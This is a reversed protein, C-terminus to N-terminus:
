QQSWKESPTPSEFIGLMAIYAIENILLTEAVVLVFLNNILNVVSLCTNWGTGYWIAPETGYMLAGRSSKCQQEHLRSLREGQLLAINSRVERACQGLRSGYM